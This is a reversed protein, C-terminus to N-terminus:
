SFAKPLWPSTSLGSNIGACGGGGGGGPSSARKATADFGELERAM